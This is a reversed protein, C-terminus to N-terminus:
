KKLKSERSVFMGRFLCGLDVVPGNDLCLADEDHGLGQEWHGRALGVAGADVAERAARLKFQIRHTPKRREYPGQDTLKRNKKKKREWIDM